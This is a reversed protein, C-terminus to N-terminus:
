RGQNGATPPDDEADDSSGDYSAEWSMPEFEDDAEGCPGTMHRFLESTASRLCFFLLTSYMPRGTMKGMVVRKRYKYIYVFTGPM